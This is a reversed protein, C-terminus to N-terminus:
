LRCYHWEGDNGFFKDTHWNYSQYRAECAARHSTNVAGTIAGTVAGAAFGFIAAAADDAGFDRRHHRYWRRYRDDNWSHRNKKWDWCDRDRSHNSCYKEVYRDQRDYRMQGSAPTMVASAAILLSVLAAGITKTM